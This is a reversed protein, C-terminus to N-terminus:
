KKWEEEVLQTAVVKRPQHKLHNPLLKTPTYPTGGM